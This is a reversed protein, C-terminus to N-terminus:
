AKEANFNQRSTTCLTTHYTTCLTTRYTTHYPANPPEIPPEIPPAFLPAFFPTVKVLSFQFNGPDSFFDSIPDSFFPRLFINLHARETAEVM